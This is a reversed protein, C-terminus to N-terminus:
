VQRLRSRGLRGNRSNGTTAQCNFSTGLWHISVQFDLPNKSYSTLSLEYQINQIGSRIQWSYVSYYRDDISATNRAIYAGYQQSSIEKTRGLHPDYHM